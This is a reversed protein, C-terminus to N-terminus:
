PVERGTVYVHLNPVRIPEALRFRWLMAGSVGGPPLVGETGLAEDYVFRAGPGRAGNDANLVEPAFEAFTDDMGSGFKRIEVEVPGAIPAASVNKLRIWLDLVRTEADYAGPDNVLEIRGTVDVPEGVASPPDGM